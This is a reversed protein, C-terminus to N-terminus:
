GQDALWQWLTEFILAKHATMRHDGAKILVLDLAPCPCDELFSQSGRWSVSTDKMGHFILTPASYSRLLTAMPYNAADEALSFGLELPTWDSPFARVGTERWQRLEEPTLDWFLRSPFSLAPAIMILPGSARPHRLHHWAIIAGGMSSGMLVPPPAETGRQGALWTLSASLDELSRSLTLDRLPGGTDGHSRLDMALFGWGREAFREMFYRAKEGQRDSALGHVFVTVRGADGAKSPLWDAVLSEGTGLPIRVQQFNM